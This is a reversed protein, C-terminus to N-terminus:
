TVTVHDAGVESLPDGIVEYVTCAAVPPAGTPPAVASPTLGTPPAVTSPPVGTAPAVQVVLEGNVGGNVQVM